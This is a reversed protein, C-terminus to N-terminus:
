QVVLRGTTGIATDTYFINAHYKVVKFMPFNSYIM